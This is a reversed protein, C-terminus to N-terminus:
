NPDLRGDGYDRQALGANGYNKRADVDPPIVPIGGLDYDGGGGVANLQIAGAVSGYQAEVPAAAPAATRSSQRKRTAVFAVVGGIILAGAVCGGIIAGLTGGDLSASSATETVRADTSSFNTSAASTSTSTSTSATTAMTMTTTTTTTTTTTEPIRRECGALTCNSARFLAVPCTLSAGETATAADVQLTGNLIGCDFSVQSNNCLCSESVRLEFAPKALQVVGGVGIERIKNGFFSSNAIVVPVTPRLYIVSRPAVNGEFDCGSIQINDSFIAGGNNNATNGRFLSQSVNLAAAFIAGGHNQASNNLFQSGVIQMTELTSHIAGGNGTGNINGEFLVNQLVIRNNTSFLRVRRFTSDSITANSNTVSVATTANIREFRSDVVNLSCFDAKLAACTGGFVRFASLSVSAANVSDLAPQGATCIGNTMTVNQVVVVSAAGPHEWILRGTRDFVSNRLAFRESNIANWLSGAFPSVFSRDVLVEDVQNQVFLLTHSVESGVLDQVSWDTVTVNIRVSPPCRLIAFYSRFLTAQVDFGAWVVNQPEEITSEVLGYAGFFLSGRVTVGSIVPFDGVLAHTSQMTVNRMTFGTLSASANTFVLYRESTSDQVRFNAIEVRQAMAGTAQRALIGYHMTANSIQIDSLLLVANPSGGEFSIAGFFSGSASFNSVRIEEFSATRLLYPSSSLIKAVNDVVIVNAISTRRVGLPVVFTTFMCGRMQVNKVTLQRLLGSTPMFQDCLFLGRLGVVTVNRFVVTSDTDNFLVLLHLELELRSTAVVNEVLFSTANTTYLDFVQPRGSNTVFEELLFHVDSVHMLSMNKARIGRYMTCSKITINRIAAGDVLLQDYTTSRWLSLSTFSGTLKLLETTNGLQRWHVNNFAITSIPVAGGAAILTLCDFGRACSGHSDEFVFAEVQGSLSSASALSQFSVPSAASGLFRITLNGRATITWQVLSTRESENPRFSLSSLVLHGVSQVRFVSSPPATPTFRFTLNAFRVDSNATANIIFCPLALCTVVSNAAGTITISTNVALSTSLRYETNPALRTLQSLTTVTEVSQAHVLALVLVFVVFAAVSM